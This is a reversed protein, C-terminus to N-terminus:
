HQLRQELRRILYDPLEVSKLLSIINSEINLNYNVPRGNQFNRNSGKLAIGLLLKGGTQYDVSSTLSQYRFDQLADVAFLVAQNEGAMVRWRPVDKLKITGPEQAAVQGGSIVFQGQKVSIPLFGAIRGTAEVNENEVAVLQSLDMDKVELPLYSEKMPCGLPAKQLLKLSGGFTELRASLLELDCVLQAEWNVKGQLSASINKMPVSVLASAAEAEVPSTFRLESETYQVETKLKMGKVYRPEAEVGWENLELRTRGQLMPTRRQDINVFSTSDLRGTHIMLDKSLDPIWSRIWAINKLEGGGQASVWGKRSSLDFDAEVAQELGFGKLTGPDIHLKNRSYKVPAKLEVGASERGHLLSINLDLNSQVEAIQGDNLALSFNKLQASGDVVLNEKTQQKEETQSKEETQPNREASLKRDSSGNSGGDPLAWSQWRLVPTSLSSIRLEKQFDVQFQGTLDLTKPLRPAPLTEPQKLSLALDVGLSETTSANIAAQTNLSMRGPVPVSAFQLPLKQLCSRSVPIDCEIGEQLSLEWDRGVADVPLIDPAMQIEPSLQLSMKLPALHIHEPTKLGNLTVQQTGELTAVPQSSQALLHNNVSLEWPSTFLVDPVHFQFEGKSLLTEFYRKLPLDPQVFIALTPVDVFHSGQFQWFGDGELQGDLAVQANAFAASAQIRDPNTWNIETHIAQGVYSSDVALAMGEGNRRIEASIPEEWLKAVPEEVSASGDEFQSNPRSLVISKVSLSVFPVRQYLMQLLASIAVPTPEASTESEKLVINLQEIRASLAHEVNECCKWGLVLNTVRFSNGELELRVDRILWGGWGPRGLDLHVIKVGARSALDEAVPPLWHPASWWSAVLLLSIAVLVALVLLRWRRSKVPHKESAPESESM